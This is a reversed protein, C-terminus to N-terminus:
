SINSLFFLREKKKVCISMKRFFFFFFSKFFNDPFDFMYTAPLVSYRFTFNVANQCDIKRKKIRPPFLPFTLQVQTEKFTKKTAGRSLPTKFLFTCLPKQEFEFRKKAKIYLNFLSPIRKIEGTSGKECLYYLHGKYFKSKKLICIPCIPPM